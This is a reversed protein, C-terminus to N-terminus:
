FDIVTKIKQYMTDAEDNEGEVLYTAGVIKAGGRGEEYTVPVDDLLECHCDGFDVGSGDTMCIFWYGDMGEYSWKIIGISEPYMDVELYEYAALHELLHPLLEGDKGIFVIWSRLGM